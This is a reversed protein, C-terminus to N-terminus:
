KKRNNRRSKKVSRNRAKKKKKDIPKRLSKPRPVKIHFTDDRLDTPRQSIELAKGSIQLGDVASLFDEEKYIRSQM